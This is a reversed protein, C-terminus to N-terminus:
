PANYGHTGVTTRLRRPLNTNGVSGFDAVIIRSKPSPHTAFLINEPKLDRHLIGMGHLYQVGRVIQRMILRVDFEEIRPIQAMYSFLDGGTALKTIVYVRQPSFAATRFSMLNPQSYTLQRPVMLALKPPSVHDVQRLADIEQLIRSDNCLHRTIIKCAVQEKTVTNVALNVVGFRGSGLSRGSVDYNLRRKLIQCNRDTKM